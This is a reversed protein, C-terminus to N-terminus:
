NAQYRTLMSSVIGHHFWAESFMARVPYYGEIGLLMCAIQTMRYNATLRGPRFNAAIHAIAKNFREEGLFGRCEELAAITRDRSTAQEFRVEYSM